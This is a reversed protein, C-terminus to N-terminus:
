EVNDEEQIKEKLIITIEKEAHGEYWNGKGEKLEGMDVDVSDTKYVGTPDKHVVRFKTGPWAYSDEYTIEGNVDTMLTDKGYAVATKDAHLEKVLVKVGQLNQKKENQVKAKLTYKAHPTGYEVRGEFVKDCGAFGLLVLIGSLLANFCTFWTKKTKGM